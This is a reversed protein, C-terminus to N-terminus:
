PALLCLPRKSHYLLIQIQRHSAKPDASQLDVVASHKATRSTTSSAGGHGHRLTNSLDAEFLWLRRQQVKDTLTSRRMLIVPSEQYDRCLKVLLIRHRYSTKCTSCCASSAAMREAYLFPARCHHTAQQHTGFTTTHTSNQRLLVASPAPVRVLVLVPELFSICLEFLDLVCVLDKAVLVLSGPLNLTAQAQM